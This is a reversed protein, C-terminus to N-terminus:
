AAAVVPPRDKRYANKVAIKGGRFTFVDVMRAEIRAGDARTGRFTSESVGRDGVVFHDGDVWQADPFTQWALQFGERVAERGVFSRGLLDPGAVGHFVCDDAMCAMLADIDHRNWADNFAQLLEIGAATNDKSM